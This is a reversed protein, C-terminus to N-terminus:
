VGNFGRGEKQFSMRKTAYFLHAILKALDPGKM